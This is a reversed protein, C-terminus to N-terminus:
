CICSKVSQFVHFVKLLPLDSFDDVLIIDHILHAPSRNLISHVTRILVSWAENHFCVIVSTSPLDFDYIMERCAAHRMDPLTRNVSILDSVYSNFANQKWGEKEQLSRTSLSRFSVDALSQSIEESSERSSSEGHDVLRRESVYSFSSSIAASPTM